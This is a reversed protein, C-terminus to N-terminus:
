FLFGNIQQCNTALKNERILQNASIRTLPYTLDGCYYIEKFPQDIIYNALAEESLENRDSFPLDFIIFKNSLNFQNPGHKSSISEYGDILKVSKYIERELTKGDQVVVLTLGSFDKQPLVIWKGITPLETAVQQDQNQYGLFYLIVLIMALILSIVILAWILNKGIRIIM